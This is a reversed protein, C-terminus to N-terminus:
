PEPDGVVALFAEVVKPDFHRGTQERIHAVAQEQEQLVVIGSVWM